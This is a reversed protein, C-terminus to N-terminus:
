RSGCKISGSWSLLTELSNLTGDLRLMLSSTRAQRRSSCGLSPTRSTTGRACTGTRPSLFPVSILDFSRLRGSFSRLSMNLRLKLSRSCPHRELERLRHQFSRLLRPRRHHARHRARLGDHSSRQSPLDDTSTSKCKSSAALLRGGVVVGEKM